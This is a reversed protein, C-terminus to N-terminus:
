IHILSLQVGKVRYERGETDGGSQVGKVRYERGETSWETSGENQVGEM